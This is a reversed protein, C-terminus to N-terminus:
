KSWAKRWWDYWVKWRVTVVRIARYVLGDIQERSSQLGEEGTRRVQEQGTMMERDCSDLYFRIEGEVFKGIAGGCRSFYIYLLRMGNVSREDVGSPAESTLLLRPRKWSTGRNDAMTIAGEKEEQAQKEKVDDSLSHDYKESESGSLSSCYHM